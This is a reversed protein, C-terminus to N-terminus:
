RLNLMGTILPMGKGVTSVMWDELKWKMAELLHVPILLHYYKFVPLVLMLYSLSSWHCFLYLIIRFILLCIWITTSQCAVVLFMVGFYPPLPFIDLKSFRCWLFTLCHFTQCLSALFWPLGLWGVVLCCWCDSMTSATSLGFSSHHSNIHFLLWNNNVPTQVDAENWRIDNTPYEVPIPVLVAIM